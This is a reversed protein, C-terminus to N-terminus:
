KGALWDQLAHILRNSALPIDPLRDALDRLLETWQQRAEMSEFALKYAGGDEEDEDDDDFGPMSPTPALRELLKELDDRRYGTGEFEALSGLIEALDRPDTKGLDSTRNDVLLIKTAEDDTCDIWSVLIQKWGLVDRAAKLRHNGYVVYGTSKQVGIPSYQGNTRMSDVISEMDGRRPNDPHEHVETVDVLATDLVEM